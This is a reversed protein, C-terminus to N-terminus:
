DIFSVHTLLEEASQNPKTTLNEAGFRFAKDREIRKM